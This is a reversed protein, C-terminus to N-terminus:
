RCKWRIVVRQISLSPQVLAHLYASEDLAGALCISKGIVALRNLFGQQEANVIEVRVRQVLAHLYASEELAEVSIVSEGIDFIRDIFGERYSATEWGFVSFWPM